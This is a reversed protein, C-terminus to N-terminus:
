SLPWRVQRAELVDEAWGPAPAKIRMRPSGSRYTLTYQSPTWLLGHIITSSLSHRGFPWRVRKYNSQQRHQTPFEERVYPPNSDRDPGGHSLQM